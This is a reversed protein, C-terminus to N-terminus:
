PTQKAAGVGTGGRAVRQHWPIRYTITWQRPPLPTSSFAFSGGGVVPMPYVRDYRTFLGADTGFMNSETLTITGVEPRFVLGANYTTFAPLNGANNISTFEANLLLELHRRPLISDITLGAKRLPKHPLQLGIGYYSGPFQLRPDITTLFTSGVTYTPLAFLNRGLPVRASIDFGRNIEDLGSLSQTMYVHGANFPISGCVTPLSWAGALGALYAALGNPFTGPPEAAIPVSARVPQGGDNERYASVKVNGGRFSHQWSFTYNLYSQKRAPDSSGDVYASQNACDFDASLPDELALRGEYVPQASGAEVSAEYVDAKAPQWDATESLVLATGAGTGSDLSVSHTLALKDNSKVHDSFGFWSTRAIPQDVQSPVGNYTQTSTGRFASEYADLSDTHRRATLSGDFGFNFGNYTNHSSYPTMAVGGVVRVGQGTEFEGFPVGFSLNTQVNGVLSNLRISAFGNRNVTMPISGYGCPLLTTFDSCIHAYSANTLMGSFAASTRKDFTYNLRLLDGRSQNSGLHEYAIGSQDAYRLGSLFSDRADFAHQFAVELRSSLAGSVAFSYTGAGYNGMTGLADYTWQKTPRLTQYNITGGLYGATPTFSVSAGTFLSQASGLLQQQPGGIRIGDIAYGTQSADHNHLSVNFASNPGYTTDDVSVGALKDLAGKLSQSVKREASEAGIETSSITVGPRSKVNAIVKLAPELAVDVRVRANELVDFEPSDSRDYDGRQVEVRYSGPTIERLDLEGQANTLSTQPTDGGLLFVEANDIPRHTAADTVWIVVEGNARQQAFAAGSCFPFALLLLAIAVRVRAGAIAGM